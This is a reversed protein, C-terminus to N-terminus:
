TRAKKWKPIRRVVASDHLGKPVISHYFPRALEQDGRRSWPLTLLREGWATYQQAITSTERRSLHLGRRRRM